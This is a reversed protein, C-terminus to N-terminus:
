YTGRECSCDITTIKPTRSDQCRFYLTQWVNDIHVTTSTIAFFSSCISLIETMSNLEGNASVIEMSQALHPRDMWRQEVKQVTSVLAPCRIFVNAIRILYLARRKLPSRLPLTFSSLFKLKKKKIRYFNDVNVRLRNFKM